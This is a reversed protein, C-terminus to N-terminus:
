YSGDFIVRKAKGKKTLIIKSGQSKSKNIYEYVTDFREIFDKDFKLRVLSEFRLLLKFLYFFCGLVSLFIFFVTASIFYIM